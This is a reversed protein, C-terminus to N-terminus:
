RDKNQSEGIEHGAVAGGAGGVLAGVWPHGIASGVLAGGGAGVGTGIATDSCGAIGLGLLLALFVASFHFRRLELEGKLKPRSCIAELVELQFAVTSPILAIQAGIV